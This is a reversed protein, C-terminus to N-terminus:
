NLDGQDYFPFYGIPADETRFVIGIEYIGSASKRFCPHPRGKM